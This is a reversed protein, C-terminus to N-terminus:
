DAKNVSSGGTLRLSLQPNGKYRVRTGGSGDVELSESVNLEASAGGSMDARCKRSELAFHKHDSGGSSSISLYEAVGEIESRSGGSMSLDLSGLQVKGFVKGGGSLSVELEDANWGNDLNIRGGGSSSIRDLNKCSLHIKVNPRGSFNIGNERYIELTKGEIDVIIYNQINEYTEISLSSVSDQTLILEFGSAVSVNDFEGINIKKAIYDGSPHVSVFGVYSCSSVAMSLIAAFFFIQKKM